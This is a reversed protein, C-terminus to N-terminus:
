VSLDNSVSLVEFVRIAESFGKLHLPDIEHAIVIGKVAWYVAEDILIQGARANEQLRKATNPVRGIVTYDMLRESGVNGVLAEGSSIGIGLGLESLLEDQQRLATFRDQMAIATWVAQQPNDPAPLPAGFFAMISDGLYKDLTGHHDLVVPTLANFVRNLVRTVLTPERHESFRTFGRIDAFLVSVESNLGGLQLNQDPNSLIERAVDESVYRMLVRELLVNKTQLEDHLQKIRLLSRVRAVLEMSHVPKGLFDDAGAELSRVQDKVSDLATVMLIPIGRTAEQARLTRAVELGDMEPMVVDLIILDPPNDAVRQLAERGNYAVDIEYGRPALMSSVLRVNAEKDDVVLIRLPKTPSDM